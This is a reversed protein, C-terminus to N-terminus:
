AVTKDTERTNQANKKEKIVSSFWETVTNLNSITEGSNTLYVSGEEEGHSQSYFHYQSLIAGNGSISYSAFYEHLEDDNIVIIKYNGKM